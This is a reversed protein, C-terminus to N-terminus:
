EELSKNHEIAARYGWLAWGAIVVPLAFGGTVLFLLYGSTLSCVGHAISVYFLGFGGCLAGLIAALIPDKRQPM